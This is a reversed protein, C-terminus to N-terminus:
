RNRRKHHPLHPFLEIMASRRASKKVERYTKPAIDLLVIIQEWRMKPHRKKIMLARKKMESAVAVKGEKGLFNKKMFHKVATKFLSSKELYKEHLPTKNQVIRPKKRAKM